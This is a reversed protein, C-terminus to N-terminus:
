GKAEVANRAANVQFLAGQYAPDTSKIFTGNYMIGQRDKIDEYAAYMCEVLDLGYGAAVASLYDVMATACFDIDLKQNKAIADGLKGQYTAARLIPSHKNPGVEFSDAGILQEIKSGNMAALITLVVICDGIDDKINDVMQTAEDEPSSGMLQISAMSDVHDTLEGFESALKPFQDKLGCGGIINRAVAWERILRFLVTMENM